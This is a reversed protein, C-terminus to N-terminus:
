APQVVKKEKPNPHLNRVKMMKQYLNALWTINFNREKRPKKWRSIWRTRLVRSSPILSMKLRFLKSLKPLIISTGLKISLTSWSKSADTQRRIIQETEML